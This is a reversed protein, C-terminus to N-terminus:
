CEQRCIPRVSLLQFGLMRSWQRHVKRMHGGLYIKPLGISEEKLTFYRGLENWLVQEANDSVVLADDTYLLLLMGRIAFTPYIAVARLVRRFFPIYGSFIDFKYSMKKFYKM